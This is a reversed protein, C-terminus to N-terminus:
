HLKRNNRIVICPTNGLQACKKLQLIEEYNLLPNCLVVVSCNGKALATEINKLVVKVKNAHVKLINSTTVQVNKSLQHLAQEESNIMLIWKNNVSYRRCIETYEQQKALENDIDIVTLDNESLSQYISTEQNSKDYADFVLENNLINNEIIVNSM